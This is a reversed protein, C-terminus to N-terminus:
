PCTAPRMSEISGTAVIMSRVTASNRATIASIALRQVQASGVEGRPIARGAEATRLGAVRRRRGGAARTQRGEEAAAVRGRLRRLAPDHLLGRPQGRARSGERRP